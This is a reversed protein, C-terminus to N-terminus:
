SFINRAAAHIRELFAVAPGFLSVCTRCRRLSPTRPREGERRLTLSLAFEALILQRYLESLCDHTRKPPQRAPWPLAPAAPSVSLGSM